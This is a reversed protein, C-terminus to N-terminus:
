NPQRPEYVGRVAMRRGSSIVARTVYEKMLSSEQEWAEVCAIGLHGATLYQHGACTTSQGEIVMDFTRIDEAGEMPATEGM